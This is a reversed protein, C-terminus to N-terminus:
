SYCGDPGPCPKPQPSDDNHQRQEHVVTDPEYGGLWRRGIRRMDGLGARRVKGIVREDNGDRINPALVKDVCERLRSALAPRMIGDIDHGWAAGADQRRCGARNLLKEQALQASLRDIDARRVPQANVIVCMKVAISGPQRFMLTDRGAIQQSRHARCPVAIGQRGMQMKRHM